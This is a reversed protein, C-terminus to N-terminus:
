DYYIPYIHELPLVEERVFANKSAWHLGQMVLVGDEGINWFGVIAGSYWRIEPVVM